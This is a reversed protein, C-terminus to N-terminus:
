IAQWKALALMGSLAVLLRKAGEADRYPFGGIRDEYRGPRGPHPLFVFYSRDDNQGNPSVNGLYGFTVCTRHFDKDFEMSYGLTENLKAVMLNIRDIYRDYDDVPQPATATSDTM